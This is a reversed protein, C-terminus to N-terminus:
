GKKNKYYIYIYIYIKKKKKKLFFRRMFCEFFHWSGCNRLKVELELSGIGFKRKWWLWLCWEGAGERTMAAGNKKNNKKERKKV